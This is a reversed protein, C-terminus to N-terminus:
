KPIPRAAIVTEIDRAMTRLDVALRLFLERKHIDNALRAILECDDAESRLKELKAKLDQVTRGTGASQSKVQADIFCPLSWL